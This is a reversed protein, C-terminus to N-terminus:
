AAVDLRGAIEALRRDLTWFMAGHLMVSALLHVDVYVLGRGTLRHSEVEAM